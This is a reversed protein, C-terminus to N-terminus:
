DMNTQTSESIKYTMKGKDMRDRQIRSLKSRFLPLSASCSSFPSEPKLSGVGSGALGSWDDM